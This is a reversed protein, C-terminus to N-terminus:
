LRSRMTKNLTVGYPSSVLHNWIIRHQTMYHDSASQTSTKLPVHKPLKHQDKSTNQFMWTKVLKQFPTTGGLIGLQLHSGCLSWINKGELQRLSSPSPPSSNDDVAITGMMANSKIVCINRLMQLFYNIQKKLNLSIIPVSPVYYSVELIEARKFTPTLLKPFISHGPACCFSVLWGAGSRRPVSHWCQCVFHKIM